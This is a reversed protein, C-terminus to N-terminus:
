PRKVTEMDEASIKEFDQANHPQFRNKEAQADPSGALRQEREDSVWVDSSSEDSMCCVRRVLRAVNRLFSTPESISRVPPLKQCRIVYCVVGCLRFHLYKGGGNFDLYFVNRRKAKTLHPM